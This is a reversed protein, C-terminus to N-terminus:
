LSSCVVESSRARVEVKVSQGDAYKHWTADDVECAGASGFDLTLTERKAGPRRPPAIPTDPWAPELGTGKAVNEDVKAWEHLMFTCWDDDVPESRTKPTCKKVQEFTGDKKDHRETHCDEGDPVQRTTRQKRVCAPLEAGMPVQDRWAAHQVPGFQEVAIAREWRHAAVTVKAERTRIFLFWVAFGIAAIALVIWPWIRRRRKPAAAAAPREDVGRVEKAGDLPSGCQTCNKGNASMPAGCAPCTRDAGVYQHGPVARQQDPTPYYRKDPNQPAGCEPCHRQSKGLLGKTGCHDCDWLMEFFGESTETQSM